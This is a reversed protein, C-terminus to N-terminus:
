ALAGAYEVSRNDGPEVSTEELPRAQEGSAAISTGAFEYVLRTRPPRRDRRPNRELEDLASIVADDHYNGAPEWGAADESFLPPLYVTAALPESYDGAIGEVVQYENFEVLHLGSVHVGGDRGRLTGTGDRETRIRNQFEPEFPQSTGPRLWLKVTRVLTKTESRQPRDRLSKEPHPIPPSGFPLMANAATVVQGAMALERLASLILEVGQRYAAAAASQAAESREQAAKYVRRAQGDAEAREAAALHSQLLELRQTAREVRRNLLTLEDELSDLAEDDGRLLLDRRTAQLEVARALASQKDKMATEVDSRIVASASSAAAEISEGATEPISM